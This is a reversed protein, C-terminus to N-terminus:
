FFTEDYVLLVILKVACVFAIKKGITSGNIKIVDITLSIWKNGLATNVKRIARFLLTISSELSHRAVPDAQM